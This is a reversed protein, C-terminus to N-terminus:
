KSTYVVHVTDDLASRDIYGISGPISKLIKKVAQSDPAERPMVGCGTFYLKAWIAKAQAASHNTVTQYFEERMSSAPSLDIPVAISGNPLETIKGLFINSVQERSLSFSPNEGGIVVLIEAVGSSSFLLLVSLACFHMNLLRYINLM